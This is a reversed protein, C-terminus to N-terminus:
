ISSWGMREAIRKSNERMKLLIVVHTHRLDHFRVKKLIDKIEIM